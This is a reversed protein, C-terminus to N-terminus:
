KTFTWFEKFIPESDSSTPYGILRVDRGPRLSLPRPFPLVDLTGPRQLVRATFRSHRGQDIHSAPGGRMNENKNSAQMTRDPM